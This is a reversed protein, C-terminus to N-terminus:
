RGNGARRRADLWATSVPAEGQKLLITPAGDPEPYSGPQCM